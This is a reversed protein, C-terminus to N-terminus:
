RDQIVAPFPCTLVIGKTGLLALFIENAYSNDKKIHALSVRFEYKHRGTMYILLPQDKISQLHNSDSEITMEVFWVSRIIM